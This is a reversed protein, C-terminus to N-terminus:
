ANKLKLERIKLKEEVKNLLFDLDNKSCNWDWSNESNIPLKMSM